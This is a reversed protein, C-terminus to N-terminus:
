KGFFAKVNPRYLYYIVVGHIIISVIAGMNGVALSAIALIIGIVSLILTVTWAWRKGRWLGYSVVLFAIGIALFIIGIGIILLVAGSTLFVIGGIATLIAVISVGLPRHKQSEM